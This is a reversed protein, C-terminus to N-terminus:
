VQAPPAQSPVQQQQQYPPTPTQAPYQGSAQGPSAPSFGLQQQQQQPSYAQATLPPSPARPPTAPTQTHPYQQVTAADKAGAYQPSYYLQQFPTAAAAAAYVYSQSPQQPSAGPPVQQLHPTGPSNHLVPRVASPMAVQGAHPHPYMVYQVARASGPNVSSVYVPGSSTTSAAAVASDGYQQQQAGGAGDMDVASPAAPVAMSMAAFQSSIDPYSPNSPSALQGADIWQGGQM